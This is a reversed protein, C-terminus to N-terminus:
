FSSSETHLVSFVFVAWGEWLKRQPHVSGVSEVGGTHVPLRLFAPHLSSLTGSLHDSREQSGPLSGSFHCTCQSSLLVRVYSPTSPSPLAQCFLM